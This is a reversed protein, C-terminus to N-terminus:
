NLNIQNSTATIANVEYGGPIEANKGKMTLFLICVLVGLLIALTQRDEGEQFVNGGTLYIETGDVATVSRIQIEVFGEQGLGKAPKSRVVQGKAISGAPIVVQDDAKVDYRVRFDIVQGPMAFQSNIMSVTELPITTGAPLQVAVDGRMQFSMSLLSVILLMVMPRVYISNYISKIM